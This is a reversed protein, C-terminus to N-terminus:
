VKLTNRGLHIFQTCKEYANKELRKIEERVEIQKDINWESPIKLWLINDDRYGSGNISFTNSGVYYDFEELSSVLEQKLEELSPNIFSFNPNLNADSIKGAFDIEKCDFPRSSCSQNALLKIADDDIYEMRIKEFLNRDLGLLEDDYRFKEKKDLFLKRTFYYTLYIILFLIIVLWLDIKIFLFNYLETLFNTRKILSIIYNYILTIISILLVSIIKSWVPDKWYKLIQKKMLYHHIM